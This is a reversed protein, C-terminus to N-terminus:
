GGAAQAGRGRRLVLGADDDEAGPPRAAPQHLLDVGLGVVDDAHRRPVM